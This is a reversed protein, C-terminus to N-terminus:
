LGSFLFTKSVLCLKLDFSVATSSHTWHGRQQQTQDINDTSTWRGFARSSGAEWRKVNTFLVRARVKSFPSGEVTASIMDIASMGGASTSEDTPSADYNQLRRKANNGM